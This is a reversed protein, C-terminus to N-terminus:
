GGFAATILTLRDGDAPITLDWNQRRVLKDNLAVATTGAPLEKWEVIEAVNMNDRPLATIINNILIKMATHKITNDSLRASRERREM